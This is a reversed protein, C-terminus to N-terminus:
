LAKYARARRPPIDRARNEGGHFGAKRSVVRNHDTAATRRGSTRNEPVPRVARVSHSFWDSIPGRREGEKVNRRKGEDTVAGKALGTRTEKVELVNIVGRFPRDKTIIRFKIRSAGGRARVRTHM